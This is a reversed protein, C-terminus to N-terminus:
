EINTKISDIRKLLTEQAKDLSSEYDKMDSRADKKEKKSLTADESRELAKQYNRMVTRMTNKRNYHTFGSASSEIYLNTFTYKVNEGDIIINLEYLVDDSFSGAFPNYLFKSNERCGSIKITMTADDTTIQHLEPEFVTTIYNTLRKWTIEPQCETQFEGSLIYEGETDKEFKYPGAAFTNFMTSLAITALTFLKKM